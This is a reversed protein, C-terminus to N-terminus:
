SLRSCAERLEAPVTMLESELELEIIAASPERLREGHEILCQSPARRIVEHVLRDIGEFTLLRATKAQSAM